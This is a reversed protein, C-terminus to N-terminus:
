FHIIIMVHITAPEYYSALSHFFFHLIIIAYDKKGMEVAMTNGFSGQFIMM